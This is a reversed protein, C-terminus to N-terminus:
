TSLSFSFLANIIIFIGDSLYYLVLVCSLSWVEIGHCTVDGGFFIWSNRSDSFTWSNLGSIGWLEHTEYLPLSGPFVKTRICYLSMMENTTVLISINHLLVLFTPKQTTGMYMMIHQQHPPPPLPLLPPVSALLPRAGRLPGAGLNCMGM